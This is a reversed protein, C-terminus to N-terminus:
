TLLKASRECCCCSSRSHTLPNRRSPTGAGEIRLRHRCRTPYACAIRQLSHTRTPPTPLRVRNVPTFGHTTTAPYVSIRQLSDVRPPPSCMHPQCAKTLETPLRLTAAQSDACCDCFRHHYYNYYYYYCCCCYYYYYQATATISTTIYLLPCSWLCVRASLSLISLEPSGTGEWHGLYTAGIVSRQLYTAGVSRQLYTAGVLRVISPQHTQAAGPPARQM